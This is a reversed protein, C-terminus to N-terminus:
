KQNLAIGTTGDNLARREQEPKEAQEEEHRAKFQEWAAKMNTEWALWADGQPAFGNLSKPKDREISDDRKPTDQDRLWWDVMEGDVVEINFSIGLKLPVYVDFLNVREKPAADLLYSLSLKSYQAFLSRLYEQHLAKYTPDLLRKDRELVDPLSELLREWAFRDDHSTCFDIYNLSEVGLMKLYHSEVRKIQLPVIKRNVSKAYDVEEKVQISGCSDPTLMLVVADAKDIGKRIEKRWDEGGPISLADIWIDFGFEKELRDVIKLVAVKDDRKYSIFLTPM